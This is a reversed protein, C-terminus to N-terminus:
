RLLRANAWDAHDAGIDNGGDGVVLVLERAGAIDVDVEKAADARTMLGSEWKRVGDVWVEFTITPGTASDAGASAQFRRYTGDLAYVIRAPAHTGLGRLYRMGNIVLPKEWVSQNKQLTGYGQTVSAPELTDLYVGDIREVPRSELVPEGTVSGAAAPTLLAVADASYLPPQPLAAPGGEARGADDQAWVWVSARTEPDGTRIRLEVQQKADKPLPIMAWRWFEPDPRGTATWGALSDLGRVPQVAGNLRIEVFGEPRRTPHELLVLLANDTGRARVDARVAFEVGENVDGATSTYDPGFAPTAADYVFRRAQTGADAVDIWKGPAPVDGVTGGPEARHTFAVVLTEYPALPVDLRAGRALNRGYVRTRPYISFANCGDAPCEIGATGPAIWPNRLVVFGGDPTVHSYGYPERPMPSKDDYIRPCADKWAPPLIPVTHELAEAHDRAWNILAALNAWDPAIMFKPNVYLPLFQHGRLVTMVADNLFPESTQHIVGLVEQGEQPTANWFAGQLNYYDRGTTYSERYVPCPVRGKPADDGYSGIVSNFYCLWWPSPNFGFGTPELWTDPAAAHVAQAMAIIGAAVADASNPGPLHGHNEADCTFVYGDLKIHRIGYTTVMEVLRERFAGAYKPGGLCLYDKGGEYGNKQAWANDLATPYRSSPSIWLGLHCPMAAAASDINRFGEPFLKSDIEWLTKPNSWGMDICFTDMWAWNMGAAPQCLADQFVLMLDLIDRETYYPAPSTWWSNYNVHIGRSRPRQSLMYDHFDKQYGAAAAHTAHWVDPEFTKGPRYALVVKGEEVRTSAVPWEIGYYGDGVRAPYSQVGDPVAVGDEPGCAVTDIVLEDVRLPAAVGTLRFEAYKQAPHLGDEYARLHVRVDLTGGGPLSVPPYQYVRFVGRVTYPRGDAVPAADAALTAPGPSTVTLPGQPGTVIFRPCAETLTPVAAGACSVALVLLAGIALHCRRMEPDRRM